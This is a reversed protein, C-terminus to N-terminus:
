YSDGFLDKLTIQSELPLGLPTPKTRILTYWVVFLVILSIAVMVLILVKNTQFWKLWGNSVNNPIPGVPIGSNCNVKIFNGPNRPDPLSCNGGCNEQFNIKGTQSNQTIISIDSFVCRCNASGACGCALDFNIPGVQSNLIDISINNLLCLNQTCEQQIGADTRTVAYPLMCLPDCAVNSENVGLDAWATYQSAPLHCACAQYINKSSISGTKIYDNYANLVDQRELGLCMQNLSPDCNGAAAGVSCLELINSVAAANDPDSKGFDPIEVAVNNMAATLVTTSAKPDGSNLVFNKCYGTPVNPTPNGTKWAIKTFDKTFDSCKDAVLPANKEINTGTVENPDCSWQDGSINNWFQTNYGELNGTNLSNFGSSTSRLMCSAIDGLYGVRTVGCRTGQVSIGNCSCDKGSGVDNAGCGNAYLSTYCIGGSAYAYEKDNPLNFGAQSCYTAINDPFVCGSNSLMTEGKQLTSLVDQNFSVPFKGTCSMKFNFNSSKILCCM